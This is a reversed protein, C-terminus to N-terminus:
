SAAESVASTVGAAAVAAKRARREQCPDCKCTPRHYVDNYKFNPNAKHFKIFQNVTGLHAGTVGMAKKMATFFQQSIGMHKRIATM